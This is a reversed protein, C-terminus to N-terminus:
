QQDGEDNLEVLEWEQGNLDGHREVWQRFDDDANEQAADALHSLAWDRV